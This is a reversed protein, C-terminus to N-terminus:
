LCMTIYLDHIISKVAEIISGNKRQVVENWQTNYPIALAKKMKEHKCFTDFEMSTYEGEM